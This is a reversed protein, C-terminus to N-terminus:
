LMAATNSTSIHWVFQNTANGVKEAVSKTWMWIHSTWTCLVIKVVSAEMDRRINEGTYTLVVVATEMDRRINEGAHWWWWWVSLALVPQPFFTRTASVLNVCVLALIAKMKVRVFLIQWLVLSGAVCVHFYLVTKAKM